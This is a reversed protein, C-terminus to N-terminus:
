YGQGRLRLERVKVKVKLERVRIPAADIDRVGSRDGLNFTDLSLGVSIVRYVM